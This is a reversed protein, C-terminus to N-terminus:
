LPSPVRHVRTSHMSRQLPEVPIFFKDIIFASSFILLIYVVPITIIAFASDLIDSDPRCLYQACCSTLIGRPLPETSLAGSECHIYAPEFINKVPFAYIYEKIVSHLYHRHQPAFAGGYM